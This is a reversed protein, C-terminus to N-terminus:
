YESMISVTCLLCLLASLMIFLHHLIIFFVLVIGERLKQRKSDLQKHRIEAAARARLIKDYEKQFFYLVDSMMALTPLM